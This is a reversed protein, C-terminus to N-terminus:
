QLQNELARAMQRPGKKYDYHLYDM